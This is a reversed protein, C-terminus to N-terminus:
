DDIVVWEMQSLFPLWEEATAEKAELLTSAQVFEFVSAEPIRFYYTNMFNLSAPTSGSACGVGLYAHHRCDAV